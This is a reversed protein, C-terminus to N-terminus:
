DAIHYSLLVPEGQRELEVEIHAAGTGLRSLEDFIEGFSRVFHGNVREIVDLDEFGLLEPLSGQLPPRWTKLSSLDEVAEHLASLLPRVLAPDVSHQQANKVRALRRDIAHEAKDLLTAGAQAEPRQELVNLIERAVVENRAIRADLDTYARVGVSRDGVREPSLKLKQGYYEFVIQGNLKDRHELYRPRALLGLLPRDLEFQHLGTHRIKASVDAPVRPPPAPKEAVQPPPLASPGHGCGLPAAAL